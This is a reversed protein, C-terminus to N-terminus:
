VKRCLIPTFIRRHNATSWSSQHQVCYYKQYSYVVITLYLEIEISHCVSTLNFLFLFGLSISVGRPKRNGEAM